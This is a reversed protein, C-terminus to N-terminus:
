CDPVYRHPWSNRENLASSNWTNKHWSCCIKKHMGLLICASFICDYSATILKKVCLIFNQPFPIFNSPTWWNSQVIKFFNCTFGILSFVAVHSAIVVKRGEGEVKSRPPSDCYQNPDLVIRLLASPHPALSLPRSSSSSSLVRRSTRERRGEGEGRNHTAQGLESTSYLLCRTPPMERRNSNPTWPADPHRLPSPSPLPDLDEFYAYCSATSVPPTVALEGPPAAITTAASYSSRLNTQLFMLTSVNQAM